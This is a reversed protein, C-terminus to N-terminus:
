ECLPVLLYGPLHYLCPQATPGRGGGRGFPSSTAHDFTRPDCHRAIDVPPTPNMVIHIFRRLIMYGPIRNILTDDFYVAFTIIVKEPHLLTAQKSLLNYNAFIKSRAESSFLVIM